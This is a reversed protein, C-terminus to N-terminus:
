FQLRLLVVFILAPSLKPLAISINNSTFLFVGYVLSSFDANSSCQPRFGLVYYLARELSSESFSSVFPQIEGLGSAECTYEQM